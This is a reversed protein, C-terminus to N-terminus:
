VRERAHPDEPASRSAASSRANAAARATTCQMADGGIADSAGHADEDAATPRRFCPGSRSSAADYRLRASAVPRTARGARRDFDDFDAFAARLVGLPPPDLFRDRDGVDDGIAGHDDNEVLAAFIEVAGASAPRSRSHRASSRAPPQKMMPPASPRAGLRISRALSCARRRCRRGPRMLQHADHQELLEVAGAGDKGAVGVM